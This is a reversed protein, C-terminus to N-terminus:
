KFSGPDKLGGEKSVTEKTVPKIGASHPARSLSELVQKKTPTRKEVATKFKDKYQVYLGIEALLEPDSQLKKLLSGDKIAAEVPKIFDKKSQESKGGIKLGLFNDVKSLKETAKSLLNPDPANSLSLAKATKSINSQIETAREKIAARLELRIDDARRNFLRESELKLEEVSEAAKAAAEEQNFGAKQYKAMEVARILQDNDLNVHDAWTKILDDNGILQNAEAVTKYENAKTKYEKARSFVKDLLGHTKEDLDLDEEIDLDDDLEKLKAKEFKRKESPTMELPEDLNIDFEQEDSTQTQTPTATTTAKSLLDAAQPQVPPKDEVIVEQTVETQEDAM